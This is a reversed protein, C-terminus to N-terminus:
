RTLGVQRRSTTGTRGLAAKLEIQALLANKDVEIATRSLAANQRMELILIVLGVVVGINAALTLWKNIQEFKM